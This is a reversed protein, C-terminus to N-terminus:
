KRAESYGKEGNFSYLNELKIWDIDEETIRKLLKTIQKNSVKGNEAPLFRCRWHDTTFIETYGKPYANAGRNTIVALEFDEGAAKEMKKGLADTDLENNFVFVDVGDLERKISTDARDYAAVPITEQKEEKDAAKEYNMPTMTEPKQGLREIVADTFEDSGVAPGGKAIDGTYIGDELTKFWANHIKSATEPQGIHILMQIAGHLLGSPNAIGKGAIDPASGHIAEFMAGEDGINASGGLGVSGSIQSAIDSAIDGYLNPMVIVDFTEPSDAIRALGIDVIWHDTEMEPYEEAVENFVKHFLGDSLKMINDKTICTVKKRGNKKAYEFAHRVIRESGPRTILKLSQVVEPTQQHEIGTYLDEENERVVVLDMDPHNTKVFPSYSITPRINAYLGLSTRITVNLSKYGGGQPTTIPAKLFVKTRLLSEWAKDPIGTSWGELYADKGIDIFEPDIQADAKDMIKLVSKMIEPGIGDGYAVTIPTKSM